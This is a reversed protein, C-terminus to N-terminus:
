GWWLLTRYSDEESVTMSSPPSSAGSYPTM